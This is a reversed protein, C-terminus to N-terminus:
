NEVLRAQPYEGLKGIVWRILRRKLPEKIELRSLLTKYSKQSSFLHALIEQCDTTKLLVPENCGEYYGLKYGLMGNEEVLPFSKLERGGLLNKRTLIM